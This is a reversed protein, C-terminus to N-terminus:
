LIGGLGELAIHVVNQPFEVETEGVQVVDEYEGM